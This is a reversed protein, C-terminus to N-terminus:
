IRTIICAGHYNTTDICLCSKWRKWLRFDIFSFPMLHMDQHPAKLIDNLVPVKSYKQSDGATVKANVSFQM